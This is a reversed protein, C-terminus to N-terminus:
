FTEKIYSIAKRQSPFCKGGYFINKDYDVCEKMFYLSGTNYVLYRVGDKAVMHKGDKSALAEFGVAMLENLLRTM